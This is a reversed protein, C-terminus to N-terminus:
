QHPGSYRITAAIVFEMFRPRPGLGWGGSADAKWIQAQRVISASDLEAHRNGKPATSRMAMFGADIM